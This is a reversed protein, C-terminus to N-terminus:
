ISTYHQSLRGATGVAVPGRRVEEVIDVRTRSAGEVNDSAEDAVEASPGTNNTSVPRAGLDTTSRQSVNPGLDTLVLIESRSYTSGGTCGGNADRSRM